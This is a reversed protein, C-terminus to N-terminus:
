AAANARRRRSAMVAAVVVLISALIRAVMTAVTFVSLVAGFTTRRSAPQMDRRAGRKNAERILQSKLQDVFADSPEVPVLTEYLRKNIRFLAATDPDHKYPTADSGARRKFLAETHRDLAQMLNENDLPNQKNDRAMIGAKREKRCCWDRSCSLYEDALHLVLKRIPNSSIVNVTQSLWNLLLFVIRPFYNSVNGAVYIV